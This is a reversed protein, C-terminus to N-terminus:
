FQIVRWTYTEFKQIGEYNNLIQTWICPCPKIKKKLDSDIYHVIHLYKFGIFWLCWSNLAGLFQSAYLNDMSSRTHDSM